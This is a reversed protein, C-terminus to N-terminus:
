SLQLSKKPGNDNEPTGGRDGVGRRRSPKGILRTLDGLNTALLQLQYRIQEETSSAPLPISTSLLKGIATRKLREQKIEGPNVVTNDTPLTSSRGCKRRHEIQETSAWISWAETTRQQTM